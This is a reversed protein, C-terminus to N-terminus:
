PVTKSVSLVGMASASIFINAIVLDLEAFLDYSLTGLSNWIGSSFLEKICKKDFNRHSIKLQPVLRKTLIYNTFAVYITSILTSSVVFVISPAFLGFLFLITLGRLCQSVISRISSLELRNTIFTGVTFVSCCLHIIFNVLLVAFSIQVDTKYGTPISFIKDVYLIVGGVVVLLLLSTVVNAILVSSFYKNAKDYEKRHFSITIFRSAMSNIAITAIQIMNILNNIMPVFGYVEEGLTKVLYPSLFFSIGL